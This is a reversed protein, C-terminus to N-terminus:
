FDSPRPPRVDGADPVPSTQGVPKTAEPQGTEAVETAPAAEQARKTPESAECACRSGFLGCLFKMLTM